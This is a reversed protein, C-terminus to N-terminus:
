SRRRHMAKAIEQALAREKPVTDKREAQAAM